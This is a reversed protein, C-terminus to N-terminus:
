DSNLSFTNRSCSLMKEFGRSSLAAEVKGSLDLMRSWVVPGALQIHVSECLKPSFRFVKSHKWNYFAYSIVWLFFELHSDALPSNMASSALPCALPLCPWQRLIAHPQLHGEGAEEEGCWLFLSFSKSGEVGCHIWDRKEGPLLRMWGPLRVLM